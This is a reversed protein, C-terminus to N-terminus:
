AAFFEENSTLAVLLQRQAFAGSHFKKTEERERPRDRQTDRERERQRDRDRDTKSVPRTKNLKLKNRKEDM